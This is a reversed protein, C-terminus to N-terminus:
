VIRFSNAMLAQVLTFLALLGYLVAVWITISTNKLGYFALFPLVQLAHMGIFHAIRLDGYTYSWNLFPLGVSGDSGGITHTLKSGMVFGEFSFIVFIIMGLRIAWVYYMPLESFDERFFLVCIYAVYLTVLTAAIAMLSFLLAYGPTSTNYHSLQGRGAQTAIYAVEFGLLIIVSWSFLTPNFNKLYYCYWAMSWSFFTTSLAFKAPKYWASVNYVQTDTIKSLVLFLISAILNALGFYYLLENRTRIEQVVELM